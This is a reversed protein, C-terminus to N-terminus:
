YPIRKSKIRGQKELERAAEVLRLQAGGIERPGIDVQLYDRIEAMATAGASKIFKMQEEEDLEKIAYAIMRPPAKAIVEALELEDFEIIDRFTIVFEMARLTYDPDEAMGADIMKQRRVMPTSELLEVLKRFGGPDKKYRTYIGM